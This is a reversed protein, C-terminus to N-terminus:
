SYSREVLLVSSSLLGRRRRSRSRIHMSCVILRSLHYAIDLTPNLQDFYFPCILSCLSDPPGGCLVLKTVLERVLERVLEKVFNRWLVFLLSCRYRWKVVRMYSYSEWHFFCSEPCKVVLIKDGSIYWLLSPIYSVHYPKRAWHRLQEALPSVLSPFIICSWVSAPTKASCLTRPARKRGGQRENEEEGWSSKMVERVRWWGDKSVVQHLIAGTLPDHLQPAMEMSNGFIGSM